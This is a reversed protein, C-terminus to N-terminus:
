KKRSIYEIKSEMIDSEVRGRGCQASKLEEETGKERFPM